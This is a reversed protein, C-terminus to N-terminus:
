ATLNPSDPNGVTSAGAGKLTALAATAAAFLAATLVSKDIPAGAALAGFYGLFAAAASRVISAILKPWFPLNVPVVADNVFALGATAAAPIAAYGAAALTSLEYRGNATLLMFAAWAELYQMVIKEVALKLRHNWTM